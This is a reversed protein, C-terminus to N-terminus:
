ERKQQDKKNRRNRLQNMIKEELQETDIKRGSSSLFGVSQLKAELSLLYNVTTKNFAFSFLFYSNRTTSSSSWNFVINKRSKSKVRGVSSQTKEVKQKTFNLTCFTLFTVMQIRKKDFQQGNLYNILSFGLRPTLNRQGCALTQHSMQKIWAPFFVHETKTKSDRKLTHFEVVLICVITWPIHHKDLSLSLSPFFM